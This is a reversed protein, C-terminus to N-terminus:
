SGARGVTSVSMFMYRASVSVITRGHFIICAPSRRYACVQLFILLIALAAVVVPLPPVPFTPAPAPARYAEGGLADRGNM